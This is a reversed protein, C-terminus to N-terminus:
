HYTYRRELWSMGPEFRSLLILNDNKNVEHQQTKTHTKKKKKTQKNTKENKNNSKIKIWTQM